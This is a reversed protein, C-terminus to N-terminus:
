KGLNYKKMKRYLTARSINLEKAANTANGNHKMLAERMRKIEIQTQIDYTEIDTAASTVNDSSSMLDFLDDDTPVRNKYLIECRELANQLERVNGIWRGKLFISELRDWWEPYWKQKTFYDEMLDKIDEKRERLPPVKIPYVYLEYFLDKRMKGQKVLNRIDKSDATIVRVNVRGYEMFNLEEQQFLRLLLVQISPSMDGIEELFLTGGDAQEIKSKFEELVSVPEDGWIESELLKESLISCNIPIFSGNARNSNNHIARAILEKGTGIEGYIHVTTDTPAVKKVEDLVDQFIGSRGKIGEFSVGRSHNIPIRYGIIRNENKIPINIESIHIDKEALERLPLGIYKQYSPVLEGPLSCIINDLTCVISEQGAEFSPKLLIERDEKMKENWDLSISEATWQITALLDYDVSTSNLSSINLIGLLKGYPNMIPSAACDWNRSAIAFHESGKVTIPKKMRKALGIANTGVDTENWKAGEVFSINEATTKVTDEGKISLIYGDKDTLSILYRFDGLFNYLHNMHREALDVLLQNEKIKQNFADQDLIETSIDHYPSMGYQECFKWSESIEDPLKTPSILEEELFYTLTQKTVEKPM